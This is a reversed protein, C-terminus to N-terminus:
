AARQAPAAPKDRLIEIAKKLQNDEPQPKPAVPQSPKVPTVVSPQDPKQGEENGALDEVDGSDANEPRKVEV